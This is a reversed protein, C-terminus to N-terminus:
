EMVGFHKTIIKNALKPFFVIATARLKHNLGYRSFLFKLYYKKVKKRLMKGYEDQKRSIVCNIYLAVAIYCRKINSYKVLKPNYEKIVKEVQDAAHLLDLNKDTFTKHTISDANVRYFYLKREVYALKKIKTLIRVTYYYDENIRGREFDVAKAIESKYLKMPAAVAVNTDNFVRILSQRSNFVSIAGDGEGLLTKDSTSNCSSIDSETEIIVDYLIQLTDLDILDDSDVFMIYQGSAIEVGANRAASLGANEQHIVKVRSDKEVYDDCIKGSSDKSGDDVLIIELNAYTQNIVSHLCEALFKEVNYVPVIVSILPSSEGVAKEM